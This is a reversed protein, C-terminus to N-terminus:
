GNRVREVILVDKLEILALVIPFSINGYINNKLVFEVDKSFLNM